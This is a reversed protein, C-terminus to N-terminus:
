GLVHGSRPQTSLLSFYCLFLQTSFDCKDFKSSQRQMYRPSGAPYALAGVAEPYSGNIPTNRQTVVATGNISHRSATMYLIRQKQAHDLAFDFLHWYPELTAKIEDYETQQSPKHNKTGFSTIHKLRAFLRKGKGM